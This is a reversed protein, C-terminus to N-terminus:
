CTFCKKKPCKKLCKLCYICNSDTINEYMTLDINMPCNKTCLYCDICIEMNRKIVRRKIRLIKGLFQFINLLAAYPCLYRCWFREQFFGVIVILGLVIGGAITVSLPFSFAIVPCFNMYKYQLLSIAFFLTVLLILYKFIGLFKHLKLPIRKKKKWPNLKFVYDQIAGLFCIYGCFVRGLFIVSITTLLGIIVMFLYASYGSFAMAGFCVAAYPCFQHCSGTKFPIIYLILLIWLGIFITQILKRFKYKYM